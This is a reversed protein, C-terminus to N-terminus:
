IVDNLDNLTMLHPVSKPPRLTARFIDSDILPLVVAYPGGERMEVLLFQTEPSLDKATRGWEPTMWWLKCRASSIFRECCLKGLSFDEMASLGNNSNFGLVIDGEVSESVNLFAASDVDELLSLGLETMVTGNLFSLPIRDRREEPQVVAAGPSEMEVFHM